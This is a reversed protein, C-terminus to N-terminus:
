RAQKCYTILDPIEKLVKSEHQEEIAERACDEEFRQKKSLAKRKELTAFGSVAIFLNHIAPFQKRHKDSDADPLADLLNCIRIAGESINCQQQKMALAITEISELLRELRDARAQRQRENQQKLMFLLKGAYVGLAAIILLGISVLIIWTM